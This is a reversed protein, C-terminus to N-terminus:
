CFLSVQYAVRHSMAYAYIGVIWAVQIYALSDAQKGYLELRNIVIQATFETSLNRLLKGIPSIIQEIANEDDFYITKLMSPPVSVFNLALEKILEMHEVFFLHESDRIQVWIQIYFLFETPSAESLHKRTHLQLSLLMPLVHQGKKMDNSYVSVFRLMLKLLELRAEEDFDMQFLQNIITCARDFFPIREDELFLSRRCGTLWSLAEILKDCKEPWTQFGEVLQDMPKEELIWSKLSSPIQVASTMGHNDQDAMTGLFDFSLCSTIVALALETTANPSSVTLSFFRFASQLLLKLHTDRFAVATKRHRGFNKIASTDPNMDQVLAQLSPLSYPSATPSEADQVMDLYRAPFAAVDLWGLVTILAHLQIFNNRLYRNVGHFKVANSLSESLNKLDDSNFLHHKTTLLVKLHAQVVSHVIEKNSEHLLSLSLELQGFLEQRSSPQNNFISALKKQTEPMDNAYQLRACLNEIEQM